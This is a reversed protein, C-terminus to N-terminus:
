LLLEPLYRLAAHGRPIGERAFGLPQTDESGARSCCKMEDPVVLCMNLLKVIKFVLIEKISTKTETM